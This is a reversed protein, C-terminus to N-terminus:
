RRSEIIIQSLLPELDLRHMLRIHNQKEEEPLTDWEAALGIEESTPERVLGEAKLWAMLQEPNSINNGARSTVKQKKERITMERAGKKAMINM